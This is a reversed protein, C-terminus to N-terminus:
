RKTTSASRAQGVTRSTSASPARSRNASQRASMRVAGNMAKRGIAKTFLLALRESYGVLDSDGYGFGTNGIWNGNQKVFANPFDASYKSAAAGPAIDNDIM